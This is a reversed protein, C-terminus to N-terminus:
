SFYNLKEIIFQQITKTSIQTPLRVVHLLDALHGTDTRLVINEKILERGPFVKLEKGSDPYTIVMAWNLFNHTAKM